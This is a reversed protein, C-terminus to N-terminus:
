RCFSEGTRDGMRENNEPVTESVKIISLSCGDVNFIVALPTDYLPQTNLIKSYWKSAKELDISIQM